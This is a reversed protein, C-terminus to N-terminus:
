ESLQHAISRVFVIPDLSGKRDKAVCFHAANWANRVFELDSGIVEPEDGAGALWAAVTSKGCGPEGTVLLFRETDRSLWGVVESLAWKRGSFGTARSAIDESIRVRPM